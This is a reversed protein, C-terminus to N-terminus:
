RVPPVTASDFAVWREANEQMFPAMIQAHECLYLLFADGAWRGKAKVVDFPVGRLLYELTRGVHFGHGPIYNIGASMCAAKIRSLFCGRILPRRTGKTEYSLLHEDPGPNNVRLHNRYAADPDTPGSQAAWFVEKGTESCKTWPVHFVTVKNGRRDHDERVDSRRIHTTARFANLKPVTFEGTRAMAYLNLSLRSREAAEQERCLSPRVCKGLVAQSTLLGQPVSNNLAM